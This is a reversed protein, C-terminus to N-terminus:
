RIEGNRGEAERATIIVRDRRKYHWDWSIIDFRKGRYLIYMDTSLRCPARVTIKHTYDLYSEGSSLDREIARAPVIQAWMDRIKVYEYDREDLENETKEGRGYLSVFCSLSSSLTDSM